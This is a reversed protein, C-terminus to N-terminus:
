GAAHAGAHQVETAALDLLVHAASYNHSSQVVQRARGTAPNILLPGLLNATIRFPEAQINLIVLASLGGPEAVGLAALDAANTEVSYTPLLARPDTVIFSLGDLDLCRLILAPAAAPDHELQFHQWEPCGVLGEPFFVEQRPFQSESM